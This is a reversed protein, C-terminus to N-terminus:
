VANANHIQALYHFDAVNILDEVRRAVGVGFGQERRYLYRVGGDLMCKDLSTPFGDAEFAGYGAGDVWGSAAGEVGTAGAFDAGDAFVFLGGPLMCAVSVTNITM